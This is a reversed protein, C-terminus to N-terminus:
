AAGATLTGNAPAGAPHLAAAVQAPSPSEKRTLVLLASQCARKGKASLEKSGALMGLLEALVDDPADSGTVLEAAMGAVDKATGAKATQLLNHLVPRPEQKPEEAAPATDM